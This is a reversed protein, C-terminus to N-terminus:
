PATMQGGLLSRLQRSVFSHKALTQVTCEKGTRFGIAKRKLFSAPILDTGTM